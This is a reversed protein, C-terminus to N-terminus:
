EVISGWRPKASQRLSIVQRLESSPYGVGAEHVSASGQAWTIGTAASVAALGVMLRTVSRGTTLFVPDDERGIYQAPRNGPWDHTRRREGSANGNHPQAIVSVRSANRAPSNLTPTDVPHTSNLM